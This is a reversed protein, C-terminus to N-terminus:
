RSSDLPVEGINPKAAWPAEPIPAQMLRDLAAKRDAALGLTGKNALRRHYAVVILFLLGGALAALVAVLVASEAGEIRGMLSGAEPWLRAVFRSM